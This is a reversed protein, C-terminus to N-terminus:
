SVVGRRYKLRGRLLLTRRKPAHPLRDLRARLPLFIGTKTKRGPETEFCLLADPEVLGSISRCILDGDKGV